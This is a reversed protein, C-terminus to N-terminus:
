QHPLLQGVAQLKSGQDEQRERLAVVIWTGLVGLFTLCQLKFLRFQHFMNWGVFRLLPVVWSMDPASFFSFFSFRPGSGSLFPTM